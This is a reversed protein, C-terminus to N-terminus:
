MELITFNPQSLGVTGSGASREVAADFWYTTGVSLGTLIAPIMDQPAGTGGTSVAIASMRPGAQTGTVAAGNAPPTGTGYSMQVLLEDGVVSSFMRTSFLLFLNGSRAPTFTQGCGMMVMSASTTGTPNNVPINNVANGLLSGVSIVGSAAKITTNDVEVIGFQSSSAKQISPAADSRMFTTASGNVASPGATATPNAAAPVTAAISITGHGNTISINSGATLSAKDLGNTSSDGILLQGDIFSSQGTGGQSVALATTLGTLSTIDGNAGSKAGALNGRATAVNAVDSLNNAPLLPTAGSSAATLRGKADATFSGYTYSGAAVGTNALTIIGSTSVTADGGTIAGAPVVGAAPTYSM